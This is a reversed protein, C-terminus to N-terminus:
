FTEYVETARLSLIREAMESKLYELRANEDDTRNAKKGLAIFEDRVIGERIRVSVTTGRYSVLWVYRAMTYGRETQALDPEISLRNETLCRTVMELADRGGPGGFSTRFSIERREPIAGDALLPLSRELVKFGHAVGGSFGHGHYAMLDAYTYTLPKGNELVTLTTATM